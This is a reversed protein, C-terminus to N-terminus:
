ASEKDAFLDGQQKGAWRRRPEMREYKKVVIELLESPTLCRLADAGQGQVAMLAKWEYVWTSSDVSYFPYQLFSTMAFGHVRVDSPVRSFVEDLWREAGNIPRQFGIGIYREPAAAITEDLVSWEEGQHFVPIAQIGADVMKRHNSQSRAVNGRIDDLNAIVDYYRGHQQCFAIYEDLEIALGRTMESFAGSDLFGSRWTPRYREYHDNQYAFSELVHQGILAECLLRDALGLAFYVVPRNM